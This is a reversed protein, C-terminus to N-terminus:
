RCTTILPREPDYASGSTSSACRGQGRHAILQAPEADVPIEESADLLEFVREASAVGSQLLNVMSAIQSLPQSFQRTYQIFAQVDGLSIHGSAVRIGGVVAVAVYNINGILTVVPMVLGSVFQAKFSAEFLEGNQEDFVREAERQRGFVKVLSHGSFSEEIHANLRGTTRWQTVFLGQSRKMVQSTVVISLPVSILAILALLPSIWLMMALVAVVTFISNLLQSMSQQLTQSVNDIDNTVRSLLEGRPQKDFYALPLRNVKDEVDDRM